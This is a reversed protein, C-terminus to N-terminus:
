IRATRQRSATRRTAAHPWGASTFRAVLPPPGVWGTAAPLAAPLPDAIMGGTGSASTPQGDGVQTNWAPAAAYKVHRAPPAPAQKWKPPGHVGGSEQMYSGAARVYLCHLLGTSPCHVCHPAAHAGAVADM